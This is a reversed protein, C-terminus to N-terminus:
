CCAFFLLANAYQKSILQLNLSQNEEQKERKQQSLNEPKEDIQFLRNEEETEVFNSPKKISM